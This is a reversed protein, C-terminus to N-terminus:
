PPKRHAIGREAEAVAGQYGTLTAAIKETVENQVAFIDDVPRDYRDSWVHSGTDAEILQATVRMHDGAAQISGELVYKVGLDRGGQRIDVAKGKYIETSNRAIVFLSKSHSLDTIIDETMGDAFREWKPDEGLNDFPLVAISPKDFVPTRNPRSELAFFAGG